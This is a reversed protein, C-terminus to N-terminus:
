YQVPDLLTGAAIAAVAVVGLVALAIKSGIQEERSQVDVFCQSLDNEQGNREKETIRYVYGGIGPVTTDLYRYVGGEKGKSALPGYTEYSALTSFDNTKGARRKVIYGATNGENNTAWELEVNLAGDSGPVIKSKIGSGSLEQAQSDLLLTGQVNQEQVVRKRRAEAKDRAMARIKREDEESINQLKALESLTFVVLSTLNQFSVECQLLHTGDV